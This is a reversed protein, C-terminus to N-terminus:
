ARFPRRVTLLDYLIAGLAHVDCAPGVHKAEGHAQEPAMYSPPGLIVGTRTRGEDADLRKALGCDTIKPVLGPFPPRPAGPAEEGRGRKPLSPRAPPAG